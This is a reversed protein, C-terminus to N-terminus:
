TLNSVLIATSNGAMLNGSPSPQLLGQEIQDDVCATGHFLLGRRASKAHDHLRHLQPPM